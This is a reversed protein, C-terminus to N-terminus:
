VRHALIIDVAHGADSIEHGFPVTLWGGVQINSPEERSVALISLEIVRSRESAVFLLNINHEEFSL